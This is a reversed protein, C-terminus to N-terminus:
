RPGPPVAVVPPVAEPDQLSQTVVQLGPGKRRPPPGCPDGEIPFFAFQTYPGMQQNKNDRFQMM